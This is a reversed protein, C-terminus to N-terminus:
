TVSGDTSSSLANLLMPYADIEAQIQDNIAKGFSVAYNRIRVLEDLPFISVPSHASNALAVLFLGVDLARHLAKKTEIAHLSFSEMERNFITVEGGQVAIMSRSLFADPNPHAGDSISKLYTKYIPDGLGPIRKELSKCTSAVVGGFIKNFRNRGEKNDERHLWVPIVDRKGDMFLAYCAYEIVVRILPQFAYPQGTIAVKISAQWLSLARWFLRFSIPNVKEQAASSNLFNRLFIGEIDQLAEYLEAYANPFDRLSDASTFLQDKLFDFIREM